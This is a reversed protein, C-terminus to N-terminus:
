YRIQCVTHDKKNETYATNDTTLTPSNNEGSPKQPSHKRMRKIGAVANKLVKASITDEAHTMINALDIKDSIVWVAQQIIETSFKHKPNNLYQALAYLKFKTMVGPAYTSTISPAHKHMQCCFGFISFHKEQGAAMRIFIDKAVFIDQVGTDNSHLRRGAELWYYGSDHLTNVIAMTLCDGSYGGRGHINLRIVGEASAKEISIFKKKGPTTKASAIVVLASGIATLLWGSKKM